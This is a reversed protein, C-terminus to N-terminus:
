DGVRVRVRVRGLHLPVVVLEAVELQAAVQRGAHPVHHAVM